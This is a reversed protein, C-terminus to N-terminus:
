MTEDPTIQYYKVKDKKTLEVEFAPPLAIDFVFDFTDQTDFDIEQQETENPLPEGLLDINNEKIYNYLGESIINNIEEALISRGYMKKLLNLPVMGPRFGPINSKKRYERLTKDVKVEYDSKEVSITISANNSDLDKRVINM